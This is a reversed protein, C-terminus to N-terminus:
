TTPKALDARSVVSANQDDGEKSSVVALRGRTLKTSWDFEHRELRGDPEFTSLVEVVRDNEDVLALRLQQGPEASLSRCFFQGKSWEPNVFVTAEGAGEVAPTFVVRRTDRDFLLDQVFAPGFNSSIAELIEDTTRKQNLNTKEAAVYLAVGGLFLAAAASAMATTRWWRPVARARFMPPVVMAASEHALESAAMAQRVQAIVKARLDAPPEVKPLLREAQAFRTQERRIQAQLAPPASLFASEFASSEGDELLGLADLMALEFLAQTNMREM